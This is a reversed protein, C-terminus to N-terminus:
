VMGKEGPMHFGEGVADGVAGSEVLRVLFPAPRYRDDGLASQLTRLIELVTDLGVEDAWRLPGKPYNTGLKMARDIDRVSAVGEGLAWAAENMIMPLIRIVIEVGEDDLGDPSIEAGSLFRAALENSILGDGRRHMVPAILQVAPDGKEKGEYKYFGEGSKRGLTGAEVMRQQIPHPRYRPEGFYAEFVSKSVAFNVDIGILDMLEFPGMVFGAFRLAADIQTIGATGEAMIRLAEGYFPRAVRNVIFGPMDAAMVPLKGMARALASATRITDSTTRRGGIVEVLQMVPAPNFFHLGVVRGADRAASAIATVSLSSTNTALITEPGAANSLSSFIERKLELDEPAAEIIIDASAADERRTTTKIRALTADMEEASLKGREVRSSLAKRTGDVGRQVYEQSIDYLLVDHGTQAATQAIGAGMTGAGIVAITPPM